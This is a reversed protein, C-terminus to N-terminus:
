FLLDGKLLLDENLTKWKLNKMSVRQALNHVTFAGAWKLGDGLICPAMYLFIRQASHQKLFESITFAGGEVLVSQINEEQYICKLVTNLNFTNKAKIKFLKIKLGEKQLKITHKSNQKIGKECCIIM